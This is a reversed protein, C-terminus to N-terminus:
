LALAIRWLKCIVVADALGKGAQLTKVLRERVVAGLLSFEEAERESTRDESVETCFQVKFQSAGLSAAM